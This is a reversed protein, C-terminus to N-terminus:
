AYSEGRRKQEYMEADAHRFLSDADIGNEPYTSSGVSIRVTFREKDMIEVPVHLAKRIRAIVHDIKVVERVPDLLLAFEDGGLRFLQDSDRVCNRLRTAFESLVADGAHHGFRDNIEKFRNLDFYLMTFRMKTVDSISIMEDLVREFRMRNGLGTLSDHEAKHALTRNETTLHSQWGDLEEMLANFDQGFQDVERVGSLSVRRSFNREFRVSNAVDAVHELPEVVQAELDRALIRTAVLAIGLCCLAILLGSVAYGALGQANGRIAVSGIREGEYDVPILLAEPWFIRNAWAQVGTDSDARSRSWGAVFQGQADRISAKEVSTIGRISDVAEQAGQRDGYILAPQAYYAVSKGALEQNQYEYSRLTFIGSALLGLAAFAVAFLVLRLHGRTLIQRITPGVAKPRREM